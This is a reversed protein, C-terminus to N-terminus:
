KVACWSDFTIDGSFEFYVDKQGTVNSVTSFTTESMQGGAPIEAYALVDGGVKGTTIKIMCGNKSSAKITIGKVGNSFDVGSVKTWEGKDGVVQTDRLGQVSINKSQNSMTEAQVTTYPDLAKLQKEIGKMSGTCSIKGTSAEYYAENLHTSRYNGDSSDKSRDNPHSGDIFTLGMKAVASRAHYAVYYKGNFEIISHHNNGGKDVVGATNKFVVGRLDSEGWNCNMPDKSTMYCIDASGFRVGNVTGGGSWNTCYSYYWTDGIKILSSDEFLYPTNMAKFSGDISIMNSGLKGIRGTGPNANKGDPVGGGYAIYGTDTKEDYYVGPDFQWLVGQGGPKSSNCLEGKIPDEFPGTPSSGRLVGVGSGNNAFYLFFQDKGDINKWAADPAWARSAWAAPGGFGDRGAVPIAGHDTWNILDDSSICNIAGSNYTNIQLRGDSYREFADNTTYLYLRGDYVMWGPDAGFRQTTLPNNEGETKWTGNATIGGFVSEAKSKDVTVYPKEVVTFETILGHIWKQLQIIDAVEVEGNEDIDACNQDATSAFGKLMGRKAMALDVIDIIGDGDVDGKVMSTRIKVSSAGPGAIKTGAPAVIVDDVYFNATSNPMELYLNFGSAGAPLTYNENTLQVWEGQAASGEAIHDYHTEGDSGTYQLSLYFSDAAEGTPYMVNASFSFSEGAKFIRSNLNVGAGNWVATRGSVYMSKSGSVKQSSSQEASADGRGTFSSLGSEFDANMWFGNEDPEPAPTPGSEGPGKWESEPLLSMLKKYCEKPNNNSDYLLANSGSKLWSNADNPGWIQVLTVRGDSQPNNNWDVAAQFIAAYKNAQDTYSYKPTNNDLLSIDLETIQVDCGISLYKKMAAIYSDTGAFGSSNAPVHSQMGVGDLLGKSYLDKCMNYICDRKHDWYENYDNYYLDCGEPAYKRAYT